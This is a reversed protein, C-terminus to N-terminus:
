FPTVNTRGYDGRRRQTGWKKVSTATIIQNSYNFKKSWIVPTFTNTNGGTGLAQVFFFLAALTGMRVQYGAAPRGDAGTDAFSSFPIYVRGRRSRGGLASRLTMVGCTQTPNMGLAQTGIGDNVTSYVELGLPLPEVKRVGVGRYRASSSLLAKYAAQFTADLQTALTQDTVGTGAKATCRYHRVNVSIQNDYVCVIRAEFLDNVEAM